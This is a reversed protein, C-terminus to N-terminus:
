FDTGGEFQNDTVANVVLGQDTAQYINRYPSEGARLSRARKIGAELHIESYLDKIM